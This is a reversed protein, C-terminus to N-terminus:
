HSHKGGSVAARRRVSRLHCDFRLDPRLLARGAGLRALQVARNGDHWVRRFVGDAGRDLRHLQAVASRTSVIDGNASDDLLESYPTYGAATINLLFQNQSFPLALEFYGNTDTLASSSNVTVFANAIANGNTDQVYGDFTMQGEVNLNVQGDAYGGYGDSVEVYAEVLCNTDPLTLMVNSADVSALGAAGPGGLWAYHLPHNQPDTATVTLQVM